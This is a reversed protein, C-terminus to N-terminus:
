KSEKISKEKKSTEIRPSALIAIAEKLTNQDARFKQGDPIVTVAIAKGNRKRCLLSWRFLNESARKVDWNPSSNQPVLVVASIDCGNAFTEANPCDLQSSVILVYRHPSPAFDLKELTTVFGETPREDKTLEIIRSDGGYAAICNFENFVQGWRAQCEVCTEGAAVLLDQTNMAQTGSVVCTVKIPSNEWEILKHFSNLRKVIETLLGEYSHKLQTLEEMNSEVETESAKLGKQIEDIRTRLEDMRKSSEEISEINPFDKLWGVNEGLIRQIAEIHADLRTQSKGFDILSREFAKNAAEPDGFSKDYNEFSKELSTLKKELGSLYHHTARNSTIVVIFLLVLFLLIAGCVLPVVPFQSKIRAVTSVSPNDQNPLTSM